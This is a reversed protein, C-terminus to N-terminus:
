NQSQVAAICTPILLLTPDDLIKDAVERAALKAKPRTLSSFHCNSKQGTFDAPHLGAQQCHPCLAVGPRARTAEEPLLLKMTYAHRADTLKSNSFGAAVSDRLFAYTKVIHLLRTPAAVRIDELEEAFCDLDVQALEWGNGKSSFAIRQFNMLLQRYLEVSLRLMLPLRGVLLFLLLQEDSWYLKALTGKMDMGMGGVVAKKIKHLGSTAEHLKDVTTIKGLANRGTTKNQTDRAPGTDKTKTNADHFAGALAALQLSSDSPSYTGPLSAADITAQALETRTKDSQIEPCLKELLDPASVPVGSVETPTGESNDVQSSPAVLDKSQRHRRSHKRSHKGLHKRQYYPPGYRKEICFCLRSPLLSRAHPFTTIAKTLVPAIIM